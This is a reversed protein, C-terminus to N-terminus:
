GNMREVKGTKDENNLIYGVMEHKDIRKKFCM